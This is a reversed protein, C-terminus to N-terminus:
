KNFDKLLLSREGKADTYESLPFKRGTIKEWAPEMNRIAELVDKHM